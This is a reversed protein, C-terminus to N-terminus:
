EWFLLPERKIFRYDLENVLKTSMVKKGIKDKSIFLTRDFGFKKANKDYIEKKSSHSPAVVNYCSSTIKKQICLSIIAVADDQHIYNVYSDKQLTKGASYKGAVRDYGMLGALRLILTDKRLVKVRNEAQLMLSPKQIINTDEEHVEGNSQSYVSTSSCLIIQTHSKLYPFIIELTQLYEGKAPIAIICVDCTYFQENYFKNNSNLLYKNKASALFSAQSNVSCYLTYESELHKALAKGLWGCGLISVRKM